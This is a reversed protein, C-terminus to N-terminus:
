RESHFKKTNSLIFELKRLLLKDSTQKNYNMFELSHGDKHVFQLSYLLPVFMDKLHLFSFDVQTKNDSLCSEKGPLYSVVAAIWISGSSM